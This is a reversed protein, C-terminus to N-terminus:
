NNEMLFSSWGGFRGFYMVPIYICSHWRSSLLAEALHSIGAWIKNITSNQHCIIRSSLQLAVEDEAVTMISLRDCILTKGFGSSSSFITGSSISIWPPLWLDLSFHFQFAKPRCPPKLRHFASTISMNEQKDKPYKRPINIPFLRAIYYMDRYKEWM